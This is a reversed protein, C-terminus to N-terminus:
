DGITQIIFGPELGSYINVRANDLIDKIEDATLETRLMPVEIKTDKELLIRKSLDRYGPKGITITHDGQYVAFDTLPTTGILMGDIEVMAPDASTTVTLKITPKAEEKMKKELADRMGPIAEDLAGAMLQLLDDEGMITQVNDTQRFRRSAAGDAAALVTGDKTDLAELGVRVTVDDLTSRHGGQDVNYRSTSITLLSGRLVVDANLQQAARLFSPDVSTETKMKDLQAFFERRDILRFGAQGALQKNVLFAGKEALSDSSLLESPLYSPFSNARNEFDLVAVRIPEAGQAVTAFVTSLGLLSLCINLHISKM